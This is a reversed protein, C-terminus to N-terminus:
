VDNQDDEEEFNDEDNHHADHVHQLDVNQDNVNVVDQDDETQHMKARLSNIIPEINRSRADHQYHRQSECVYHQELVNSCSSTINNRQSAIIPSSSANAKKSAIKHDVSSTADDDRDNSADHKISNHPPACPAHM